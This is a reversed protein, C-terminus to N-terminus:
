RTHLACGQVCLSWKSLWPLPGFSAQKGQVWSLQRFEQFLFRGPDFEAWWTPRTGAKSITDATTFNLDRLDATVSSDAEFDTFHKSRCWREATFCGPPDSDVWRKCGTCLAVLTISLILFVILSIIGVEPSTFWGTMSVMGVPAM